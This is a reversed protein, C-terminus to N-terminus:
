LGEFHLFVDCLNAFTVPRFVHLSLLYSCDLWNEFVLEGRAFKQTLRHGSKDVVQLRKLHHFLKVRECILGLGAVTVVIM